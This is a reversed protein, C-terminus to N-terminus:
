NDHCRIALVSECILSGQRKKREDDNKNITYNPQHYPESAQIFVTSNIKLVHPNQVADYQIQIM